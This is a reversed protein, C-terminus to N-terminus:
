KLITKKNNIEKTNSTKLTSLQFNFAYANLM